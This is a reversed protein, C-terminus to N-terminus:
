WLLFFLESLDKIIMMDINIFTDRFEMLFKSYSPGGTKGVVKQVWEKTTTFNEVRNENNDTVESTNKIRDIEENMEGVKNTTDTHDNHTNDTYHITDNSTGSNRVNRANSLYANDAIGDYANEIGTVGGQPTDSYLDWANDSHVNDITEHHTVDTDYEGNNVTNETYNQNRNEDDVSQINRNGDFDTVTNKDGVDEGEHTTTLDVDYLPNFKLLTSEYLQNYYPMIENMKTNLKLKWLGVTELGIERTYYHKLIKTELVSRYSEDFIPYDFDFIKERSGAIVEEVKDYGVSEDLGSFNECIFRVETTYHSM